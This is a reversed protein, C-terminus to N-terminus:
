SGECLSMLVKLVKECAEKSRFVKVRAVKSRLVLERVTMCFKM